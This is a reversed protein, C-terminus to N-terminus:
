LIIDLPKVKPIEVVYANAESETKHLSFESPRIGTQKAATIATRRIDHIHVDPLKARIVTTRWISRFGYYTYPKLKRTHIIRTDAKLLSRVTGSRGHLRKARDLVWTLSDTFEYVGEVSNKSQKVYLGDERVQSWTMALLDGVRLGTIFALDMFVPILDSTSAQRIKRFEDQTLIRQRRKTPHYNVKKAVNEECWGWRVGLNLIKSLVAKERNASHISSRLDMYRGVDSPRIQNVPAKGFAKILSNLALTYSERTAPALKNFETKLYETALDGFTKGPAIDPPLLQGYKVLAKHYDTGLATWTRKTGDWTVLFYSNKKRHMRPPLYRDSM